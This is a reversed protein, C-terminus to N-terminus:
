GKVPPENERPDLRDLIRQADKLMSAYYRESRTRVFLGRALGVAAGLLPLLVAAVPFRMLRVADFPLWQYLQDYRSFFLFLIGFAAAAVALVRLVTIVFRGVARFPHVRAELNRRMVRIQAACRPLMSYPAFAHNVLQCAIAAIGVAAIVRGYELLTPFWALVACTSIGFTAGVAIALLRARSAAIGWLGRAYTEASVGSQILDNMFIKEIAGLGGQAKRRRKRGQTIASIMFAIQVAFVLGFGLRKQFVMALIFAASVPIGLWALRRFRRTQFSIIRFVPNHEM